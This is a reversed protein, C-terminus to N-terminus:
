GYSKGLVARQENAAGEAQIYDIAEQRANNSNTIRHIENNDYTVAVGNIIPKIRYCM